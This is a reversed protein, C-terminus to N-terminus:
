SSRSERSRGGAGGLAQRLTRRALEVAEEESVGVATLADLYAHLDAELRAAAVRKVIDQEQDRGAQREPSM